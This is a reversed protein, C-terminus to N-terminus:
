LTWLLGLFVSRQVETRTGAVGWEPHRADTLNQGALSVEVVPSPRWVLRADVATYAPVVPNPLASVHRVAIDLGYQASFDYTSRVNWQLAPDNGLAAMGGADISGPKVKWRERLATVGGSLKWDPRVRWAGWAEIGTNTGEIQNALTLGRLEPRISRLRDYDTTFLTVTYSLSPSPQARYGIEYVSAIESDFTDNGVLLFPRVGPAYFDRDIRAPARVARSAAAWLMQTPSPRWAVRVSPLFEIDTYVNSEVKMGVIVDVDDRVAIQDQIFANGWRLNRDPPLFAQAASNTVRDRAFRYGAGVLVDHITALTVGYQGEIDLTDLHEAFTGAHDRETYDYYAQVRATSGDSNRRSWRSLVNAGAVDRSSPLQDITATYADGQVTFTDTGGTWDARFGIQGHDSADRVPTGDALESHNRHFYRGYARYSGGNGLKGGYRVAGGTERNGGGATVLGGQTEGAPRTVINIVGNVANVGWLTAGPGSIVEIRDIDELMVDQAEWFTGSFLPSYVTRGDIMVLLKNALTNNFGRASIAYQNTDARAVQLNPALRLAEPLSTAGSRRIDEHTIVFISAPADALSEERRSVSTVVINSLQELSLDGLAAMPTIAAQGIAAYAM